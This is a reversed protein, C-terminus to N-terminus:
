QSDLLPEEETEESGKNEEDEKMEQYIIEDSYEGNVWGAYVEYGKLDPFVEYWDIGEEEANKNVKEIVELYEIGELVPYFSAQNYSSYDAIDNGRIVLYYLYQCRFNGIKGNDYNSIKAIQTEGGSIEEWIAIVIKKDIDNEELQLNVTSVIDALLNEDKKDRILYNYWVENWNRDEKGEYYAKRGIKDYIAKSIEDDAKQNKAIYRGCGTVSIALIFVLSFIRLVILAQKRM